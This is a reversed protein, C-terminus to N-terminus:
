MKVTFTQPKVPLGADFDSIFNQLIKSFVIFKDGIKAGGSYVYTTDSDFQKDFALSVPCARASGRIGNVIDEATVQLKM